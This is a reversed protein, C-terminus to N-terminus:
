SNYKYYLVNTKYKEYKYRNVILALCCAILISYDSCFAIESSSAIFLYSFISLIPLLNLNWPKYMIISKYTLFTMLIVLLLGIIGFEGIVTAWGGDGVYSYGEPTFGRQDSLGYVHYAESYYKGSAITGFTAFGSGFPFFKEAIKLSVIFATARSAEPDFFYNSIQDYGIITCVFSIAILHHWKLKKKNNVLLVMMIVAGVYAFAKIRLTALAIICCLIIWITNKRYDFLLFSLFCCAMAATTTSHGGFAFVPLGSFRDEYPDGLELNFILNLIVLGFMVLIFLKIYKLAVTDYKKGNKYNILINLCPFVAFLKLWALCDVCIAFRSTQYKSLQNGTIGIAILLICLIVLYMEYQNLCLKKITLTKVVAYVIIVVIFIDDIYSFSEHVYNQLWGGCIIGTVFLLFIWKM